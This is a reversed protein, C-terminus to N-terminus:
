GVRSKALVADAPEEGLKWEPWDHDLRRASRGSRKLTRVAPLAYACFLGRCCAVVGRDTPLEALRRELNDLPISHAGDIHGTDFEEAPRVDILM